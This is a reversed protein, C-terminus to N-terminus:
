GSDPGAISAAYRESLAQWDVLNWFAEIWHNKRNQYQVYYAHEWMDLVLLPQSEPTMNAHHDHLQHIVLRSALPELSLAAWGSGQLNNATAWFQQRFSDFKGFDQEIKTNLADSPKTGNGPAMSNWLLSHLIHGSVHFALDRSLGNIRDFSGDVQAEMLRELTQNAGKVYAAHHAKHHREMSEASCYPELANYQYPLEPLEYPKIFRDSEIISTASYNM